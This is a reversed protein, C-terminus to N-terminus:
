GDEFIEVPPVGVVGARAMNARVRDSAAFADGDVRSALPHVVAVGNPDDPSRHVSRAVMGHEGQRSALSDCARRWGDYDACRHRILMGVSM